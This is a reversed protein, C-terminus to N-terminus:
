VELLKLHRESNLSTSLATNRKRKYDQLRLYNRLIHQLVPSLRMKKAVLANQIDQPRFWTIEAPVNRVYQVDGNTRLLYGHIFRNGNDACPRMYDLSEFNYPHVTQGFFEEYVRVAATRNDEGQLVAGYCSSKWDLFTTGTQLRPRHLLVEGKLNFVLVAVGRYFVVSGVPPNELPRDNEDVIMLKKDTHSTKNIM